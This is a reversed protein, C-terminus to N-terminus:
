FEFELSHYHRHLLSVKLDVGKLVPIDARLPYHFHVCHFNYDARTDPDHADPDDSIDTRRHRLALVYNGGARAKTIDALFIDAELELGRRIWLRSM